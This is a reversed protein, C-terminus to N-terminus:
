GAAELRSLFRELRRYTRRLMFRPKPPLPDGSSVTFTVDVFRLSGPAIEHLAPSAVQYELLHFDPSGQQVPTSYWQRSAAADRRASV